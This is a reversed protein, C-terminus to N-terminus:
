LFARKFTATHSDACRWPVFGRGRSFLPGTEQLYRTDYDAAADASEGFRPRDGRWGVGVQIQPEGSRRLYLNKASLPVNVIPRSIRLSGSRSSSSARQASYTAIATTEILPPAKAM